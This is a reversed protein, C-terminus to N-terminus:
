ASFTCGTGGDPNANDGTPWDVWNVTPVSKYDTAFSPLGVVLDATDNITRRSYR